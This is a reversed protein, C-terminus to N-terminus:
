DRGVVAKAIFLCLFCGRQLIYIGTFHALPLSAECCVVSISICVGHCDGRCHEQNGIRYHYNRNSWFCLAFYRRRIHLAIGLPEACRLM